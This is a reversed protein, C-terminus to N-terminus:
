RNEGVEDDNKDNQQREKNPPSSGSQNIGSHRSKAIVRTENEGRYFTGRTASKM